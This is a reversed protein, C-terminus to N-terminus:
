KTPQISNEIPTLSSSPHKLSHVSWTHVFSQVLEAVKVCFTAVFLILLFFNQWLNFEGGHYYFFVEDDGFTEVLVM